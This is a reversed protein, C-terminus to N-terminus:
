WCTAPDGSNMFPFWCYDYVIGGEKVHVVSQLCDLPRDASVTEASYLDRPTEFVHMGDGNVTTLLCTGDPSWLCGKLYRQNRSSGRWSCRALEVVNKEIFFDVSPIVHTEVPSEDFDMVEDYNQPQKEKVPTFDIDTSSKEESPTYDVDTSQDTDSFGSVEVLTAILKNGDTLIPIKFPSRIEIALIKGAGM